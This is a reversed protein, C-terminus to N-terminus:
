QREDLSESAVNRLWLRRFTESSCSLCSLNMASCLNSQAHEELRPFDGRSDVRSVDQDVRSDEQDASYNHPLPLGHFSRMAEKRAAQAMAQRLASAKAEDLLEKSAILCESMKSVM